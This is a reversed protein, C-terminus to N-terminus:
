LLFHKGEEMFWVYVPTGAMPAAKISALESEGTAYGHIVVGGPTTFVYQVSLSEHVTKGQVVRIKESHTVEGQLMM